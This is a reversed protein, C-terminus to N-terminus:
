QIRRSKTRLCGQRSEVDLCNVLNASSFKSIWTQGISPLTGRVGASTCCSLFYLGMEQLHAKVAYFLRHRYSCQWIEICVTFWLFLLMIAAHCSFVAAFWFLKRKIKLGWWKRRGCGKCPTQAPGSKDPVKGGACLTDLGFAAASGWYLVPSFDTTEKKKRLPFLM